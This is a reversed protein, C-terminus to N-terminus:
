CFLISNTVLGPFLRFLYFRTVAWGRGGRSYLVFPVGVNKLYQSFLIMSMM